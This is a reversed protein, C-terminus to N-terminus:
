DNVKFVLVSTVSSNTLLELEGWNGVSSWVHRLTSSRGDCVVILCIGSRGAFRWCLGSDPMWLTRVPSVDSSCVPVDHWPRNLHGVSFYLFRFLFNLKCLCTLYKAYFHRYISLLVNEDLVLPASRVWEKLEVRIVIRFTVYLDCCTFIKEPCFPMKIPTGNPPATINWYCWYIPYSLHYYFIAETVSCLTGSLFTVFVFIM